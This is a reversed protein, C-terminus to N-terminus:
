SMERQFLYGNLQNFIKQKDSDKSSRYTSIQKLRELAVYFCLAVKQGQELRSLLEKQVKDADDFGDFKIPAKEPNTVEFEDAGIEHLNEDLKTVGIFEPKGCRDIWRFFGILKTNQTYSNILPSADKKEKRTPKGKAKYKIKGSEELLERTMGYRLVFCLDTKNIADEFDSYEASGSGGPVLDDSSQASTTAQTFFVLYNDATIAITSVGIGRSVNPIPQAILQSSSNIPFYKTLDAYLTEKAFNVKKEFIRSRFAEQTVLKDFYYSKSIKAKISSDKAASLLENVTSDLSLMEGNFTVEPNKVRIVLYTMQLKAAEKDASIVNNLTPSKSNDDFSITSALYLANDLEESYFATDECFDKNSIRRFDQEEPCPEIEAFSYNNANPEKNIETSKKYTFGSKPYDHHRYTIYPDEDKYAKSFQDKLGNGSWYISFLSLFGLFSALVVSYDSFILSVSIILLISSILLSIIKSIKIPRFHKKYFLKLDNLESKSKTKKLFKM